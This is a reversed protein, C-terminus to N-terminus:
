MLLPISGAHLEHRHIDGDDVRVPRRDRRKRGVVELDADIVRHAMGHGELEHVRPAIVSSSRIDWGGAVRRSDAPSEHEDHIPLAHREAVSWLHERGRTLEDISERGAVTRSDPDQRVGAAPERERM